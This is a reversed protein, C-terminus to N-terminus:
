LDGIAFHSAESFCEDWEGDSELFNRAVCAEKFTSFRVGNHSYLDEYCTPGHVKTLLLRLYYVDGHCPNLFVLRGLATGLKREKWSYPKTKKDYVFYKPYEQYLLRRGLESRQNSTFFALLESTAREAAEEVSDLSTNQRFFLVEVNIHCGYKLLLYPSHPVIWENGLQIERGNVTKTVTLGSRRRYRPYGTESIETVDTLKKPYGKSCVRKGHKDTVMCPCNPNLDGCPGHVMNAEVLERLRGSPDLEESPLEASIFDDIRAPDLFSDATSLFLLLHPHPLGRKQYEITGSMGRYTGFHTRLDHVMSQQQKHFVMASLGPDNIAKSNEALNELIELWKPNATFTVFLSPKGLGRMIAMSNQYLMRMHRDCGMHTSPLIVRQGIDSRNGLQRSYDGETPDVALIDQVNKYMDVRLEDQRTKIWKLREREVVSYADVWYRQALRRAYKFLEFKGARYFTVYRYWM